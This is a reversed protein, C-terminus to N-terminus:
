AEVRERTGANSDFRCEDRMWAPLATMRVLLEVCGSRCLSCRGNEYLAVLLPEGEPSPNSKIVQRADMGLWHYHNDDPCQALWQEIRRLDGDRYNKAMLEAAWWRREPSEMLEEAFARVLDGEIQGLASIAARAVRKDSARALEILRRPPGPFPRNRFKRLIPAVKEPDTETELHGAAELLEEESPRRYTAIWDREERLFGAFAPNGAELQSEATRAADAGDREAITTLLRRLMWQDEAGLNTSRVVAFWFARAGDLKVLEDAGTLNFGGADIADYMAQRMGADGERAFLAAVEFLQSLNDEDGCSRLEALVAERYPPVDGGLQILEWLYPARSEECQRDFREDHTFAYLLAERYPADGHAEIALAARGLGKRVWDAFTVAEAPSRLDYM